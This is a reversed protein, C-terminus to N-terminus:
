DRRPATSRRMTVGWREFISQVSLDDADVEALVTEAKARFAAEIQYAIESALPVTESNAEFESESSKKFACVGCALATTDRGQGARV